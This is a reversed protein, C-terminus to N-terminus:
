HAYIRGTLWAPWDREFFSKENENFTRNPRTGIQMRTGDFSLVIQEAKHEEREQRFRYAELTGSRV